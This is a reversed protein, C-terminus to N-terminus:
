PNDSTYLLYTCLSKASIRNPPLVRIRVASEGSNFTPIRLVLQAISKIKHYNNMIIKAAKGSKTKCKGQGRKKQQELAKRIYLKEIAPVVPIGKTIQNTSASDNKSKMVVTASM